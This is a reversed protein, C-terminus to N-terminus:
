LWPLLAPLVGWVRGASEPRGVAVDTVYTTTDLHGVVLLSIWRELLGRWGPVWGGSAPHGLPALHFLAPCPRFGSSAGGRRRSQSSSGSTM